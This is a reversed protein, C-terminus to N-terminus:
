LDHLGDPWIKSRSQVSKTLAQSAMRAGYSTVMVSTLSGLKALMTMSVPVVPTPTGLPTRPREFASLASIVISAGSSPTVASVAHVAGGLNSRSPASWRPDVAPGSSSEDADGRGGARERIM